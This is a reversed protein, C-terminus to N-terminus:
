FSSDFPVFTSAFVICTPSNNGDPCTLDDVTVSVDTGEVVEALPDGGLDRTTFTLTHDAGLVPKSLEVVWTKRVGDVTASLTANPPSEDVFFVDILSALDGQGSLREPRDTFWDAVEDVGGLAIQRDAGTTVSDAQFAFLYHKQASYAQDALLTGVAGGGFALLVGAAISIVVTQVRRKRIVDM